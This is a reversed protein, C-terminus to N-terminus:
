QMDTNWCKRQRQEKIVTAQDVEVEINKSLDNLNQAYSEQELTVFLQVFLLETKGRGRGGLWCRASIGHVSAMCLAAQRHCFHM